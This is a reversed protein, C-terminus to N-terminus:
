CTLEQPSLVFIRWRIREMLCPSCYGAPSISTDPCCTTIHLIYVLRPRPRSSSILGSLPIFIVGGCKSYIVPESMFAAKCDCKGDMMQVNGVGGTWKFVDGTGNRKCSM